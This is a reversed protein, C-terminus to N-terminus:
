KVTPKGAQQWAQLGGGLDYVYTGQEALMLAAKNSRRGTRCYVAVQEDKLRLREVFDPQNIDINEAGAIHGENYESRTRVDIVRMRKSQVLEEFDNVHMITVREQPNQAKEAKKSGGCGVAMVAVITMLLLKKM